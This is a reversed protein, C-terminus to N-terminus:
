VTDTNLVVNSFLIGTRPLMVSNEMYRNKGIHRNISILNSISKDRIFLALILLPIFSLQTM